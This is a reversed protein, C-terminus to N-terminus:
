RPSSLPRMVSVWGGCALPVSATDFADVASCLSCNPRATSVMVPRVPYENALGGVGFVADHHLDEDEFRLIAGGAGIM